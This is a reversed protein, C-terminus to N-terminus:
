ACSAAVDRYGLFPGCFSYQPTDAPSQMLSDVLTKAEHDCAGRSLVYTTSSEPDRTIVLHERKLIAFLGFGENFAKFESMTLGEYVLHDQIAPDFGFTRNLKIFVDRSVPVTVVTAKSQQQQTLVLVRLRTKVSDRQDFGDHFPIKLM